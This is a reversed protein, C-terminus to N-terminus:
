CTVTWVRCAHRAGFFNLNAAILLQFQISQVRVFEQRVAQNPSLPNLAQM